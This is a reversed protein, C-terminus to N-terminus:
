PNGKYLIYCNLPQNQMEFIGKMMKLVSRLNWADIAERLIAAKTLPNANKSNKNESVIDKAQFVREAVIFASNIKKEGTNKINWGNIFEKLKKELRATINVNKGCLTFEQLEIPSLFGEMYMSREALDAAARVPWDLSLVESIM